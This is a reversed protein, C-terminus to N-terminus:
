NLFTKLIKLLKIVIMLELVGSWLGCGLMLVNLDGLTLLLDNTLISSLADQLDDNFHKVMDGPARVIPAYACVVSVFVNHSQCLGGLLCQGASALKLRSYSIVRSKVNECEGADQWAVTATCYFGLMMKGLVLTTM